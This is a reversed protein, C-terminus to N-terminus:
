RRRGGAVMESLHNLTAIVRPEPHLRMKKYLVERVEGQPV